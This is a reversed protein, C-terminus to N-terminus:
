SIASVSFRGGIPRRQAVLAAVARSTYANLKERARWPAYGVINAASLGTVDDITEAAEGKLYLLIFQRGLPRLRRILNLLIAALFRYDPQAKAYVAPIGGELTELDVLRLGVPPKACRSLGRRQACDSLALDAFQLARRVIQPEVRLELHIDQLLDL